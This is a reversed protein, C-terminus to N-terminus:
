SRGPRRQSKRLDGHRITPRRRAVLTRDRGEARGVGSKEEQVDSSARSCCSHRGRRGFSRDGVISRRPYRYRRQLDGDGCALRPGPKLHGADGPWLWRTFDNGIARRRRLVHSDGRARDLAGVTAVFTVSQGFVASGGSAALAITTSSRGITFTAPASQTPAYDASGAFNAEVTYTGVDTPPTAGLSAGSTNSGDYYALLPTVGELGTGPSNGIGDITVSAPFPNGDYVGGPASVNLSPVAKDVDITSTSAATTYDTTDTPTLSVALTQGNGAPLVTGAAPAYSFRGPVSAAADLQTSSLAAGYIIDAPNAWTILPAAKDVNITVTAMATVYDMTDTPTFSVSLTQGAGVNLLTGADSAYSFSGSVLATADLQTSSLATGYTLAAPASWTIAPVAKDVNITTAAVSTTYDAADTPTFTVSLTQDDGADLVAGLAPTYTFTGPVSATADLQASSLATGYTIDAPDAWTVAPM